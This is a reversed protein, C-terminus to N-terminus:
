LSSTDKNDKNNIKNHLPCYDMGIKCYRSCQKGKNKGKTLIMKCKKNEYSEINSTDHVNPYIKKIGNVLPLLNFQSRCYPCRNTKMNKFTLFLCQYHFEHGCKLKHSYQSSLPEACISCSICDM